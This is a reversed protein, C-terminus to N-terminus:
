SEGPDSSELSAQLRELDATQKAAQARLSATTGDQPVSMAVLPPSSILSPDVAITRRASPQKLKKGGTPPGVQVRSADKALTSTTKHGGSGDSICELSMHYDGASVFHATGRVYYLQSLRKGVGRLDIVTKAHLNPDGELTINCKVAMQQSRRLDAAAHRAAAAPDTETTSGITHHAISKFGPVNSETIGPAEVVSSLTARQKESLLNADVSITRRKSPHHNKLNVSGARKTVDNEISIDTIESLEPDAYWTLTRVSQQYFDREHFHFGDHDIYWEFGEKQALRRLFQADTQRAQSIHERGTSTDQIHLQSEDRFGWEGAIQRVVDSRSMNEFSRVRTVVNLEVEKGLAEIRLEQFGMVKRIQCIRPVSMAEPYGWSITILNGKRWIPDDFGSLDYNDVTLELKDAKQEVDQYEMSIVRESMDVRVKPSGEPQVSVQIIPTSRSSM